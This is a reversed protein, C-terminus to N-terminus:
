SVRVLRRRRYGTVVKLDGRLEADLSPDGTDVRLEPTGALKTPTAVVTVAHTGAAKIVSPSIQQNGRGFFFGQAGIPTVVIRAERGGRLLNMLDAESADAKLLRRDQYVDVGLLTKEQEMARAIRYTTSGPGLIYLVGPCMGDVLYQAIEAAEEEAGSTRYVEKGSQIHASDDPVRAYGYLRARVVGERFGEEDVDMVEAEKTRKEAEFSVVLDALDSPTNAFVASHMKVGCPIGVIPVQAASAELVDRATGDGGAFVILDVGDAIFSKVATRTDEATTSSQCACVVRYAFGAASLEDAGMESACTIFDIDAEKAKLLKLAATARAHASKLAGREKALAVVEETDTGKLGVPGGMGAIPNVVFGIKM